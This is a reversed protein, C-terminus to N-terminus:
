RTRRWGVKQLAEMDGVYANTEKFIVLVSVAQDKGSATWHVRDVEVTVRVMDTPDINFFEGPLPPRPLSVMRSLTPRSRGNDINLTILLETLM